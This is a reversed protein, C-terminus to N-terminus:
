SRRLVRICPSRGHGGEARDEGGKRGRGQLAVGMQGEGV